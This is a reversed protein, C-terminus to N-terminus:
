AAQEDEANVPCALGLAVIAEQESTQRKRAEYERIADARRQAEENMRVITNLEWM